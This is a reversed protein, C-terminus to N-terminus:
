IEYIYKLLEDYGVNEYIGLKVKMIHLTLAHFTIQLHLMSVDSILNGLLTIQLFRM